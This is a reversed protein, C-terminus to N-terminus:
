AARDASYRLVLSHRKVKTAEDQGISISAEAPISRLRLDKLLIEEDM